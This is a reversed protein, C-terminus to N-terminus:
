KVWSFWGKGEQDKPIVISSRQGGRGYERVVLYCGFRNVRRQIIFAKSGVRLLKFFEHLHFM